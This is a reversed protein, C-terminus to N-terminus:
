RKGASAVVVAMYACAVATAACIFALLFIFENTM